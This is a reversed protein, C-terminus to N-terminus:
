CGDRCMAWNAICKTCRDSSPSSCSETCDVMRDCRDKCRQAQECAWPPVVPGGGACPAPDNYSPAFSMAAPSTGTLLDDLEGAATTLCLTSVLACFFTVLRTKM